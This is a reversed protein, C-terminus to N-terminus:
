LSRAEDKIPRPQFVIELGANAYSAVLESRKVYHGPPAKGLFRMISILLRYYSYAVDGSCAAGAVFYGGFKILASVKNVAAVTDETLQLINLALVVDFFRGIGEFKEM